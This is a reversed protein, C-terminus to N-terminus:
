TQNLALFCLSCCFTLIDIGCLIFKFSSPVLTVQLEEFEDEYPFARKTSVKDVFQHLELELKFDFVSRNKYIKQLVVKVSGQVDALVFTVADLIGNEKSENLVIQVKNLMQLFRRTLSPVLKINKSVNKQKKYIKEKFSHSKFKIIMTQTNTSPQYSRTSHLKDINTKQEEKPIGTQELKDIITETMNEMNENKKKKECRIHGLMCPRRFYVGFNDAKERTQIDKQHM